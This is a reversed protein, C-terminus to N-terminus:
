PKINRRDNRLASSDGRGEGVLLDM